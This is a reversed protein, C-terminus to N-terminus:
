RFMGPPRAAPQAQQATASIAVNSGAELTQGIPEIAAEGGSVLIIRVPVIRTSSGDVVTIQARNGPALTTSEVVGTNGWSTKPAAARPTGSPGPAPQRAPLRFRLAAVPVVLANDAHAVEIQANATMGPRLRGDSNNEYVVTDYTVVNQITTPNERIQAVTGHFTDNPFALVTFNVQQGVRLSGIDPEGVALDVEMKALDKAISYLTPTQFSAAVTQGMSVNRAIVTGDVPSTIVTHSLNITAQQVQAQAAEIAALDAAATRAFANAQSASANSQARGAGAQSRAASLQMRSQSATVVASSLNSAAAVQNAADADYQSQAIYGSALLDRDRALTQQALTLASRAKAVSADASTMAEQTVGVNQAAADANASAAATTSTAGQANALAAQWQAQAEALAGRAQNLQAQFLTPDLRALVEGAHVRDNYDAVIAQITGSVQTGVSITDQPNVTGTATVAAILTQRVLPETVIHPVPQPRLLYAAGLAGAILVAAVLVYLRKLPHRGADAHVVVHEDVPPARRILEKM